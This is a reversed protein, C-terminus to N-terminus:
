RTGSNTTANWPLATNGRTPVFRPCWQKSIMRHLKVEFISRENLPTHSRKLLCDAVQLVIQTRPLEILVLLTNHVPASLLQSHTFLNSVINLYIVGLVFSLRSFM